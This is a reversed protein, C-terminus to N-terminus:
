SISMDVPRVLVAMPLWLRCGCHWQNGGKLGFWLGDLSLVVIDNGDIIWVRLGGQCNAVVLGVENGCDFCVRLGGRWNAVLLGVDNHGNVCFRL